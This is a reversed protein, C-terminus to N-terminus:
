PSALSRRSVLRVEVDLQVGDREVAVTVVDGAQHRRVINVLEPFERVPDDDISIITDGVQLGAKEAPSGAIVSRIVCTTDDPNSTVGLVPANANAIMMFVVGVSAFLNIGAHVLTPAVLTKRWLYIATLVVGLVIIASTSLAGYAHVLGFVVCQIALALFTPMRASLANQLYGRFFIEEAVPAVTFAYVLVIGALLPQSTQSMSHVADPTLSKGPSLLGILYNVVGLTFLTLIVIPVAIAFELLLEPWNAAHVLRSNRPQRTWLPFVVLFVQPLLGGALLLLWWPFQSLWPGLFTMGRCLALVALGVWLTWTPWHSDRFSIAKAPFANTIDSADALPDISAM